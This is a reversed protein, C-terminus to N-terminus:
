FITVEDPQVRGNSAGKEGGVEAGVEVPGAREGGFDVVVNLQNTGSNVAPPRLAMSRFRVHLGVEGGGVALSEVNEQGRWSHKLAPFVNAIHNYM